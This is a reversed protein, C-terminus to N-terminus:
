RRHVGPLLELLNNEVLPQEAGVHRSLVDSCSCEFLRNGGNTLL